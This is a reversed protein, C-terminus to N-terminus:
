RTLQVFIRARFFSVDSGSSTKSAKKNKFGFGSSKKKGASHAAQERGKERWRGIHFTSFNFLM